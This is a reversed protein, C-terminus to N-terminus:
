PFIGYFISPKTSFAGANKLNKKKLYQGSQRKLGFSNGLLLIIIIIIIIFM